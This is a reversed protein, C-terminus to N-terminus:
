NQEKVALALPRFEHGHCLDHRRSVRKDEQQLGVPEANPAAMALGVIAALCLNIFQM